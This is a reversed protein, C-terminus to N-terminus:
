KRIWKLTKELDRKIGYKAFYHLINLVDRELFKESNPHELVVGQGFDIIYPVKGMMINYESLDAHVLGAKYMKRMDKLISDLDKESRPGIMNMTAYPLGGEGLFEM